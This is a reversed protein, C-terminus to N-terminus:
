PLRVFTGSCSGADIIYSDDGAIATVEYTGASTFQKTSLNIVWYPDDYRFENGDDALGPPVLDPNNSDDTGSGPTYIVNVVPFSSINSETILYGDSDVLTMKVPIAKKVKNKLTILESFPSAFMDGVCSYVPLPAVPSALYIGTTGDDLEARFAIQGDDNIVPDSFSSFVGSSDVVLTDADTFIGSGGADLGAKYAITGNNNIDPDFISLFKGSTDAVLTGADTFIGSGGADLGAKYAITGNDNIAAEGFSSLIGSTDVELSGGDTFIFQDQNSAAKYAVTGTNNIVPENSFGYGSFAGNSEIVVTGADTYIGNDGSDLTAKYVVTGNDNIDPSQGFSSFPGSSDVVLTGADTYIGSGGAQLFAKYVVMGNNNIAIEHFTVFGGSSYDVVLTGADTFIGGGGIDLSAEYAVTGTDNIAPGSTFASFAGNTDAVTTISYDLAYTSGSSVLAIVLAGIAGLLHSSDM